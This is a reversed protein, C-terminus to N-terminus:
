LYHHHVLPPPHHTNAMGWVSIARWSKTAGRNPHGPKLKGSSKGAPCTGKAAVVNFLIDWRFHGLGALRIWITLYGGKSFMQPFLTSSSPVKVRVTGWSRTTFHDNWRHPSPPSPNFDFCSLCCDRYFSITPVISEKVDCRDKAMADYVREV